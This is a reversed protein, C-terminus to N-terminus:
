GEAARPVPPPTVTPREHHVAFGSRPAGALELEVLGKAHLRLFSLKVEDLPVQTMEAIAHLSSVGDAHLFLFAERVDIGSDAGSGGLPRPVNEGTLPARTVDVALPSPPRTPRSSPTRSYPEEPAETGPTFEENPQSLTGEDPLVAYRAM